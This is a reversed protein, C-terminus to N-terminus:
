GVVWAYIKNCLHLRLSKRKKFFLQVICASKYNAKEVKVMSESCSALNVCGDNQFHSLLGNDLLLLQSLQDRIRQNQNERGGGM